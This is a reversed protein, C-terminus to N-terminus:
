DVRKLKGEYFTEKLYTDNSAIAQQLTIEEDDITKYKIEITM